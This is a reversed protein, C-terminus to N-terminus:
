LEGIKVWGYYELLWSLPYSYFPNIGKFDDDCIDLLPLGSDKTEFTALHNGLEHWLVTIKPKM